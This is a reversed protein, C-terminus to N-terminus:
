RWAIKKGRVVTYLAGIWYMQYLLFLMPYWFVGTKKKLINARVFYLSLLMIAIGAIFSTYGIISVQKVTLLDIRSDFLREFFNFGTHRFNVLYKATNYISVISALAFLLIGLLLLAIHFPVFYAFLGYKSNMMLDKHKFWTQIAGSYWRRRQVYIGKFTEPCITRVHATLCSEIKYGAKHIRYAIELDETINNPDFGKIEVLM